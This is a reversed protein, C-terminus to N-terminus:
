GTRSQVLVRFVRGLHEPHALTRFQRAEAASPPNTDNWLKAAVPSLFELQSFLGLTRLGANEGARILHSFNVHSTIDQEGPNELLHGSVAHHRYARLTGNSREPVLIERALLGYDLTLLWGHRLASAAATWWKGAAPSLELTFGDPLVRALEPPIDISADRLENAWNRDSAPLICWEFCGETTKVGWEAWAQANASWRLRHVPFADLLENAFVVGRCGSQLERLDSIWRVKEYFSDLTREQWARRRQSPEVIIYELRHFLEPATSAATALIDVALRGDHAGAEIWAIPGSFEACWGAFQNGLLRGFLDGASVSTVFDGQQGIVQARHEYYGFEPCYLALEMFRHFSIAGRCGMELRLKAALEASLQKM